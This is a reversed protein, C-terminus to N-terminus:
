QPEQWQEAGEQVLKNVESTPCYNLEPRNFELLYDKAQAMTDMHEIFHDLGVTNFLNRILSNAGSLMIKGEPPSQMFLEHFMKLCSADITQLQSCDFLIKNYGDMVISDITQQMLDINSQNLYGEIRIVIVDEYERMKIQMSM